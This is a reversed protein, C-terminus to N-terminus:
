RGRAKIRERIQRDKYLQEWSNLVLTRAAELTLKGLCVARHLDGEIVDKHAYDKGQPWLNRVNNSGGLELPIRHDIEGVVKAKYAKAIKKKFSQSFTCRRIETKQHCIIDLDDTETDGPACQPVGAIVSCTGPEPVDDISPCVRETVRINGDPSTFFYTRGVMNAPMIPYGFALALALVHIM